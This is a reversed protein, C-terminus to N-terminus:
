FILSSWCDFLDGEVLRTDSGTEIEDRTESATGNTSAHHIVNALYIAEDCAVPHRSIIKIKKKKGPSNIGCSGNAPDDGFKSQERPTTHIPDSVDQISVSSSVEFMRLFHLLQLVFM